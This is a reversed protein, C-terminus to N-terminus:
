CLVRASTISYQSVRTDQFVEQVLPLSILFPVSDPDPEQTINM